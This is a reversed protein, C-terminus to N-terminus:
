LPYFWLKSCSVCPKMAACRHTHALLEGLAAHSHMQTHALASGTSCPQTGTLTPSSNVWLQMTTCRLMRSSSLKNGLWGQEQCMAVKRVHQHGSYLHCPSHLSKFHIHSSFNVKIAKYKKYGKIVYQREQVTTNSFTEWISHHHKFNTRITKNKRGYTWLLKKMNEVGDGRKKKVVIM